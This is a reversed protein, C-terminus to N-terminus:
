GEWGHRPFIGGEVGADQPEAHGVGGDRFSGCLDGTVSGVQAALDDNVRAAREGDVCEIDDAAGRVVFVPGGDGGDMGDHGEGVGCAREREVAHEEADFGGAGGRAAGEM